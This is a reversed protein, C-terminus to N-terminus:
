AVIPRSRPSHHPGKSPLYGIGIDKSCTRGFFSTTPTASLPMLTSRNAFTKFDCRLRKLPLLSPKLQRDRARVDVERDPFFCYPGEVTKESESPM